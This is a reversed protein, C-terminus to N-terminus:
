ECCVQQRSPRNGMKELTLHSSNIFNSNKLLCQKITDYQWDLMDPSLRYFVWRGVKRESVLGHAKLQAMHRSIKPQSLALSFTLECICLEQELELMLIIKLRTDDALDKFFYVPSTEQNL